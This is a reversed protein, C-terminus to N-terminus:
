AAAQAAQSPPQRVPGGGEAAQTGFRPEGGDDGGARGSCPLGVDLHRLRVRTAEGLSREALRRARNDADKIATALGGLGAWGVVNKAAPNWASAAACVCNMELELVGRYLHALSERARVRQAQFSWSPSPTAAWNPSHLLAALGMYWPIRGVVHALARRLDARQLMPELLLQHALAPPAGDAESQTGM